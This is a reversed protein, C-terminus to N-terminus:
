NKNDRDTLTKLFIILNKRDEDNKIGKFLMKTGPIYKNPAKIFKSLEEESWTGGLGRLKESYQFNETRAKKAGVISWLPPGIKIKRDKKLSHCAKCKKVQKEGLPFKKAVNPISSEKIKKTEASIFSTSIINKPEEPKILINGM